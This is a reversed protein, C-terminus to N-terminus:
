RWEYAAANAVAELASSTLQPYKRSLVFEVKAAGEKLSSTGWYELRVAEQWVAVFQARDEISLCESVASKFKWPLHWDTFRAVAAEIAEMTWLGGGLPGNVTWAAILFQDLDSFWSM